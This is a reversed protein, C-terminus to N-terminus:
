PKYLIRVFFNCIHQFHRISNSNHRSPHYCNKNSNQYFCRRDKKRKETISPCYVFTAALFIYGIFWLGDTSSVFDRKKVMLIIHTCYLSIAAFWFILGITVCMISKGHLDRIGYRCIAIIGMSSAVAAAINMMWLATSTRHFPDSLLIISNAIAILILISM